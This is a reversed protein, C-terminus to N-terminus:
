EKDSTKDQKPAPSKAIKKLLRDFREESDDAELERAAERFKDAQSKKAKETTM